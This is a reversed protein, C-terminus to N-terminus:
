LILTLFSIVRGKVGSIKLYDFSFTKRDGGLLSKEGEWLWVHKVKM